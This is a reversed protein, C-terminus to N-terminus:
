EFITTTERLSIYTSHGIILHDLLEIGMIEACEIMRRTFNLDPQSPTTDGSPHNHAIIIRATPYKVAEKFIERPHVVSSNVTGIFITRTTIIDNKTNLFLVVFHEQHLDALYHMLWEGAVKTSTITGLTPAIYSSVRRGFEIAAKIEIAKAQGVGKIEMLDTFSAYRLERLSQFHHLLKFALQLANEEKTGTRLLIALLEYDTLQREGNLLLKERPKMEPALEHITYHQAM